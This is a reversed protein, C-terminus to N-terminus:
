SRRASENSNPTGGNGGARSSREQRPTKVDGSARDWGMPEGELMSHSPLDPRHAADQANIQKAGDQAHEVTMPMKDPCATPTAKMNHDLRGQGSEHEPHAREYSDSPDPAQGKSAPPIRKAM